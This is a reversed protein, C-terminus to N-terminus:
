RYYNQFSLTKYKMKHKEAFEQVRGIEGYKEMANFWYEVIMKDSYNSYMYHGFTEFEAFGNMNTHDLHHLIAKYWDMGNLKSIRDKLETLKLKPVIMHHAVFSVPLKYDEKLLKNYITRYPVNFEDSVDFIYKGQYEFVHNRLFITDTDAWFIHDSQAFKDASLKIFQQLLWGNRNHGNVIYGIDQFKIPAVEEEDLWECKLEKCVNKIKESKPSIVYSNGIPHKIYKRISELMYPFTMLDKELMPSFTDIKVNSEYPHNYNVNIGKSKNKFKNLVFIRQFSLGVGLPGSQQVFLHLSKYINFLSDGIGFPL